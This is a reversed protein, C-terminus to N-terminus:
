LPALTQIAVVGPGSLSGATSVTLPYTVQQNPELTFTVIQAGTAESPNTPDQSVVKDIGVTPDNYWQAAGGYPNVRATMFVRIRRRATTSSNKFTINIRNKVGYHGKNSDFANASDYSNEKKMVNDNTSNAISYYQFSNIDGTTFNITSTIDAFSWSGRPHQPAPPVVPTQNLRLNLGANGVCSRIRIAIPATNSTAHKVSFEVVGGVLQNNNVNWERILGVGGAQVTSDIPTTSDLTNGVLAKATCVGHKVYDGTTVVSHRVNSIQIPGTSGNGITLGYKLQRNTSNVHWLFVRYNYQNQGSAYDHWLTAYGNTFNVSSNITEPNDSLLFRTNGSASATVHPPASPIRKISIVPASKQNCAM